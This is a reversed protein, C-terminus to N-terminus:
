LVELLNFNIRSDRPLEHVGGPMEDFRAYVIWRSGTVTDMIRWALPIPGTLRGVQLMFAYFDSDRDGFLSGRFTRVVDRKRIYTAGNNLEKVISYDRLGEAIGNLPDNFRNCTGVKLLGARVIEGAAATMELTATFSSDREAFEFWACGSIDGPLLSVESIDTDGTSDWAIGSEWSIGAAWAITQGQSITLNVSLANTAIVALAGGASVVASLTADRDTGKWVKKPHHDMLNSAPYAADEESAAVSVIHDPHICRM